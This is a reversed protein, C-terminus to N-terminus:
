YTMLNDLQEFLPMPHFTAMVPIRLMYQQANYQQIVRQFNTNPPKNKQEEM